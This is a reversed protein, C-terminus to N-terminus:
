RAWRRRRRARRAQGAGVKSELGRARGDREQRARRGLAGGSDSERVRGMGKQRAAPDRSLCGGEPVPLGVREEGDGHGLARQRVGHAPRRHRREPSSRRTRDNECHVAPDGPSLRHTTTSHCTSGDRSTRLGGTGRAPSSLLFRNFTSRALFTLPMANEEVEERQQM